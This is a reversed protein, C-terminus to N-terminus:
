PRTAQRLKQVRSNRQRLKYWVAKGTDNGFNDITPILMYNLIHRIDSHKGSSLTECQWVKLTKGATRLQRGDLVSIMLFRDNVKTQRLQQQPTYNKMASSLGQAFGM